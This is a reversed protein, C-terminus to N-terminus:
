NINTINKYSYLDEYFTRMEETIKDPETIKIDNAKILEKINKSIFNNNELNLFLKNPKEEQSYMQSRSRIFSGKLKIDRIEELEKNKEKIEQELQKDNMNLIYLHDLLELDKILKNEKQMRNRKISAAHSIITGRLKTLLVEWFLEINIMFEPVYKETKNIYEPNYPTSTSKVHLNYCNELTQTVM